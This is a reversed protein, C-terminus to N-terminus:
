YLEGGGVSEMVFYIKSNTEILQLLQVINPHRLKRVIRIERSVNMIDRSDVIM